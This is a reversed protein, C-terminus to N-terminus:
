KEFRCKDSFKRKLWVNMSNNYGNESYNLWLKGKCINGIGENTLPKLVGAKIDNQETLVIDPEGYFENFYLTNFLLPTKDLRHINIIKSLMDKNIKRPLHTEYNWKPEFKLANFTADLLRNWTTSAGQVRGGNYPELAVVKDFYDSDIPAIAMIDDYIYIFDKTILDSAIIHNLKNTIDMARAFTMGRVKDTQIHKGNYWEPCDGVIVIDFPFTIYKCLSRISQRLEIDADGKSLQAM